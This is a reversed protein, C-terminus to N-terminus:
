YASPLGMKKVLAQYRPESHLFDFVPENQLFVLRPAHERYAEELLQLTEERHQARATQMARWFPSVYSGPTEKGSRKLDWETVAQIGGREFERELATASDKDGQLLFVEKWERAAQEEEGVFQYAQSLMEHLGIDEPRAEERPRLEKLADQFRRLQLYTHGLAWPRAFPDVEMGREQAELAEEPRNLVTLVYSYLHFGEAYNPTLSICRKSEDEAHKWDWAWFLYWGALSNHAEPLSDDLEVAKRAAAEWTTKAESPPIVGAVARGGYSDSIGSWAAAYDPQLQVAKQFYQLSPQDNHSLWFFRGQMYAEHAQPNIYRRTVAPTAAAKIRHAISRSLESPLEDADKLERDYSEAWVHTDTSAHILQITMHVRDATHKISGELIGDVGLERAIDRLPRHVGKYQMVSTRSIVRLSPNNALATILEDTMGDAFRDQFADGSLDELPLVALSRISTASKADRSGWFVRTLIGLGVVCLLALALWRWKAVPKAIAQVHISPSQATQDPAATTPQVDSSSGNPKYWELEGVFRYGRRPVTEIWKAKEATDSLSDRLRQVASNLGHDFDVFTNEPWLNARLEERRVLEGPREILLLLIQLPQEGLKVRVGFKRLEGSRLDVEYPGFRAVAQSATSSTMLKRFGRPFLCRRSLAASNHDTLGRRDLSIGRFHGGM